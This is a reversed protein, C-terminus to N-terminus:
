KGDRPKTKNIAIPIRFIQSAKQRWAEELALSFESNDDDDNDDEGDDFEALSVEMTM